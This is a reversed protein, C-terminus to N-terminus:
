IQADLEQLLADQQEKTMTDADVYPGTARPPAPPPPAQQPELLKLVVAAAGTAAASVLLARFLKSM